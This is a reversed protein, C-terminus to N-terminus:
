KGLLYGALKRGLWEYGYKTLHCGDSLYTTHNQVNIGENYLDIFPIHNKECCSKIGDHYQVLTLGNANLRTDSTETGNNWTRFLPLMVFLHAKPFNISMKELVYNLSGLTTIGQDNDDVTGLINNGGYDNTGFALSIIDVKSYDVAKMKTVLESHKANGNIGDIITAGAEQLSWDGSVIADVLRYMSFADYSLGDPSNNWMAYHTGGVGFNYTINAGIYKGCLQPYNGFQTISDGFAVYKKQTRSTLINNKSPDIVNNYLYEMFPYFAPTSYGANYMWEIRENLMFDSITLNNTDLSIRVFKCGVPITIKNATAIAATIINKNTDWMTFYVQYANRTGGKICSFYYTKSEEVEIYDFLVYRANNAITPSNPLILKGVEYTQPCINYSDEYIDSNKAKNYDLLAVDTELIQVDLNLKQVELNLLTRHINDLNLLGNNAKYYIYSESLKSVLTSSRFYYATLPINADSLIINKMGATAFQLSSIPVKNVDYFCCARYDSYATSGDYANIITDKAVPIFDTMKLSTTDFVTGDDKVSGFLSYEIKKIAKLDTEIQALEDSVGKQSMVLEESDGLENTISTKDIKLALADEMEDSILAFLSTLFKQTLGADTSNGLAALLPVGAPLVGEEPNIWVKVNPNTPETASVVAGPEGRLEEKQAPSLDTFKLKLVEYSVLSIYSTDPQSAYKWEIGAAGTRFVPIEGDKGVPLAIAVVPSEPTGGVSITPSQGYALAGITFSLAPTAGTNGRLLEISVKASKNTAGDIGLVNLGELSTASPLGSVKIKKLAM